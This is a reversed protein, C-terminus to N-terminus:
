FTDFSELLQVVLFKSSLGVNNVSEFVVGSFPFIMFSVCFLIHVSCLSVVCISKTETQSASESSIVFLYAFNWKSIM